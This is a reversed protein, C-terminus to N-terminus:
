GKANFLDFKWGKNFMKDSLENTKLISPLRDNYSKAHKDTQEELFNEVVTLNNKNGFVNTLIQVGVLANFGLVLAFLSLLIQVTSNEECSFVAVGGFYL